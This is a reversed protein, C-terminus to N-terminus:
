GEWQDVREPSDEPAILDTDGPLPRQTRRNFGALGLAAGSIITAVAGGM